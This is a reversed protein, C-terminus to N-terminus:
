HLVEFVCMVSVVRVACELAVLNFSVVVCYFFWPDPLNGPLACDGDPVGEVGIRTQSPPHPSILCWVRSLWGQSGNWVALSLFVLPAHRLGRARSTPLLGKGVVAARTGAWAGAWRVCPTPTRLSQCMSRRAM